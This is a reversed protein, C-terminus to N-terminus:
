TCATSSPCFSPVLMSCLTVTASRQLPFFLIDQDMEDGAEVGCGLKLGGHRLLKELDIHDGRGIVVRSQGIVLYLDYVAVLKGLQRESWNVAHVVNQDDVALEFAGVEPLEVNVIFLSTIASM